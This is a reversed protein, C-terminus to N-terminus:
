GPFSAAATTCSAPHAGPGTQVSSSLSAGGGRSEIGPGILVTYLLCVIRQNELVCPRQIYNPVAILVGACASAALGIPCSNSIM